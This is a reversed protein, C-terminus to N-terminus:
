VKLALDKAQALCLRESHNVCFIGSDFMHAFKVVAVSDKRRQKQALWTPEVPKSNDIGQMTQFKGAISLYLVADDALFGVM